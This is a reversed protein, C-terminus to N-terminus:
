GAGREQLKAARLRCEPSGYRAYPVILVDEIVVPAAVARATPDGLPFKGARSGDRLHYVEVEQPGEPAVIVRDRWIAPALGLRAATRARWIEHGNRARLCYLHNDLSLLVVRGRVVLPAVPTAAAAHFEWAIREKEVDFAILARREPLAFIQLGEWPTAATRGSFEPHRDLGPAAPLAPSAEVTAPGEQGDALRITASRSGDSLWAGGPGARAIERPCFPAPVDWLLSLELPPPVPANRPPRWSPSDPDRHCGTAVVTVLLAAALSNRAVLSLSSRRPRASGPVPEGSAGSYLMLENGSRSAM